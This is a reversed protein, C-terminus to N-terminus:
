YKAFDASSLSSNEYSSRVEEEGYECGRFVLGGFVLSLGVGTWFCGDLCGKMVREDFNYVYCRNM